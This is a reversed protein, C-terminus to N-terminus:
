YEPITAIPGSNCVMRVTKNEIKELSLFTCVRVVAVALGVAKLM